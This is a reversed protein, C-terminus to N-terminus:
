NDDDTFKECKFKKRQCGSPWNLDDAFDIKKHALIGVMTRSKVYYAILFTFTFM